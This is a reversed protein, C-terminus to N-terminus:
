VIIFESLFLLFPLRNLRAKGLHYRRLLVDAYVNGIEIFYHIKRCYPNFKGQAGDSLVVDTLLVTAGQM